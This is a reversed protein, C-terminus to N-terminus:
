VGRVRTSKARQHGRPHYWGAPKHCHQLVQGVFVDSDAESCSTDRTVTELLMSLACVASCSPGSVIATDAHDLRRPHNRVAPQHDFVPLQGYDAYELLLACHTVGM